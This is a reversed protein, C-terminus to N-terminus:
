YVYTTTRPPKKQRTWCLLCSCRCLLIMYFATCPDFWIPSLTRDTEIILDINGWWTSLTNTESHVSVLSWCLPFENCLGFIYLSMALLARPATTSPKQSICLPRRNLEWPKYREDTWCFRVFEQVTALLHLLEKRTKEIELNLKWDIEPLYIYQKM